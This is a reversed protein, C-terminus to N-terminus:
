AQGSAAPRTRGSTVMGTKDDYKIYCYSETPIKDPSINMEDAMYKREGPRSMKFCYIASCQSLSTKDFEQPRQGICIISLGQGLGQRILTGYSAPAAGPGCVDPSEEVVLCLPRAHRRM